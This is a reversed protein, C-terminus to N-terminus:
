MPCVPMFIIGWLAGVTLGDGFVPRFVFSFSNGTSSELADRADFRQQEQPLFPCGECLEGDVSQMELVMYELNQSAGAVTGRFSVTGDAAASASLSSFSFEDRSHDPIPAGKRGCGALALVGVLLVAAWGTSLGSLRKMYGRTMACNAQAPNERDRNRPEAPCETM